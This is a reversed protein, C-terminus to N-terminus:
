EISHPRVGIELCKEECHVKRVRHLYLFSGYIVFSLIGPPKGTELYTQSFEKGDTRKLQRGLTEPVSEHSYFCISHLSPYNKAFAFIQKLIVFLRCHWKRSKNTNWYINSKNFYWCLYKYVAPSRCTSLQPFFLRQCLNGKKAPLEQVLFCRRLLCLILSAWTKIATTELGERGWSVFCAGGRERLRVERHTHLLYIFLRCQLFSLRIERGRGPHWM